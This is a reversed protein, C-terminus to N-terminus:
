SNKGHWGAVGYAIVELLKDTLLDFALGRWGLINKQTKFRLILGHEFPPSSIKHILRQFSSVIHCGNLQGQIDSLKACAPNSL